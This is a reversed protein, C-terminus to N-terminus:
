KFASESEELESGSLLPLSLSNKLSKSLVIGM